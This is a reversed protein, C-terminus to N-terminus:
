LKRRKKLYAVLDDYMGGDNAYMAVNHASAFWPETSPVTQKAADLLDKMGILRVVGTRVSDLLATEAASECLHALDAGSLGDTLKVLKGM